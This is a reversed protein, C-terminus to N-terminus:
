FARLAGNETARFERVILRTMSGTRPLTDSRVPWARSESKWPNAITGSEVSKAKSRDGFGPTM